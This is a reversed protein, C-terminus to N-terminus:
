PMTMGQYTRAAARHVPCRGRHTNALGIRSQLLAEMACAWIVPLTEISYAAIILMASVMRDVNTGGATCKRSQPTTCSLAMLVMRRHTHSAGWGSCGVATM